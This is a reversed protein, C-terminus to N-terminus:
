VQRGGSLLCGAVFYALLMLCYAIPFAFPFLLFAFFPVRLLLRSAHPTLRSTSFCPHLIFASPHVFFSVPM